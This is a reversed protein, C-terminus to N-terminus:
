SRHHMLKVTTVCQGEARLIGFSLLLCAATQVLIRLLVLGYLLTLLLLLRPRLHLPRPRGVENNMGDKAGMAESLDARMGIYAQGGTVVLRQNSWRGDSAAAEEEFSCDMGKINHYQENWQRKAFDVLDFFCDDLPKRIDRAFDPVFLLRTSVGTGLQKERGERLRGFDPSICNAVLEFYDCWDPAIQAVANNFM